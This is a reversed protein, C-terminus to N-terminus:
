EDKQKKGKGVIVGATILVLGAAALVPVPWKLQGTQPLTRTNYILFEQGNVRYTVVYGDPVHEERVSWKKDADIDNWEHKWGNADSLEVTDYVNGDCLLQVSISDPRNEGDDNWLKRVTIDTQKDEGMETFKPVAILNYEWKGNNDYPLVALFPLFRAYKKNGKIEAVLYAGPTLGDFQVRGSDNTYRTQGSIRNDLVYQFLKKATQSSKIDDLTKGYGKFDGTCEFSLKEGNAAVDAVRYLIVDAGVIPTKNEDSQLLVGLTCKGNLDLSKEGEAFVGSSVDSLVSILLLM